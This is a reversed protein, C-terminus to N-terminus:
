PAEKGMNLLIVTLPAPAIGAKLYKIPSHGPISSPQKEQLSTRQCLIGDLLFFLDRITSVSNDPELLDSTTYDRRRCSAPNRERVKTRGELFIKLSSSVDIASTRYFSTWYIRHFVPRSISQAYLVRAEGTGSQLRRLAGRTVYTSCTPNILNMELATPDTSALGRM